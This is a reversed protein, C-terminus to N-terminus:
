NSIRNRYSFLVYLESILPTNCESAFCEWPLSWFHSLLSKSFMHQVTPQAPIFSSCHFLARSQVSPTREESEKELSRGCSCYLWSYCWESPPLHSFTQEETLVHLLRVKCDTVVCAGVPPHHSRHLWSSCVWHNPSLQRRKGLMVGGRVRSPEVSMDATINCQTLRTSNKTVDLRSGRWPNNFVHTEGPVWDWFSTHRHLQSPQSISLFFCLRWSWWTREPSM